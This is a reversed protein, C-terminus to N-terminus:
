KGSLWNKLVSDALKELVKSQYQILDLKDDISELVESIYNQEDMSPLLIDLSKVIDPSINAQGGSSNSLSILLTQYDWSSLLHTIYKPNAQTKDVNIISVRQNLLYKDDRNFQCVKGVWSDPSGDSRNGSMTILIDNKKIIFKEKGKAVDESVYSLDDLVLRRPKVNKIKIVPIGKEIFDTGKFGYGNSIEAIQGLKIEKWDSM